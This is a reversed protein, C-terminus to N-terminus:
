NKKGFAMNPRTTVSNGLLPLPGPPMRPVNSTSPMRNCRAFAQALQQNVSVSNVLPVAKNYNTLPLPPAGPINAVPQKPTLLVRVPLSTHPLGHIPTTSLTSAAAVNVAQQITATVQNINAPNTNSPTFSAMNVSAKKATVLTSKASPINKKLSSVTVNDAQQVTTASQVPKGCATRTLTSTSVNVNAATTQVNQRSVASGQTQKVSPNRSQTSTSLNVSQKSAVTVQAPKSVSACSAKSPSMNVGQKSAVSGRLPTAFCTSSSASPTVNTTVNAATTQLPRSRSANTPTLTTMAINQRLVASSQVQKGSPTRSPTSTQQSGVTGQAPKSVSASSPKSAVSGQLPKAFSTNISTSTVMNVREKSTVIGQGPKAISANRSTSAAVNVATQTAESGCPTNSRSSGNTSTLSTKSVSQNPVSGPQTPKSRTTTKVATSNEVQMKLLQHYPITRTWLSRSNKLQCVVATKRKLKGTTMEHLAWSWATMQNQDSYLGKIQMLWRELDGRNRAQVTKTLFIEAAEQMATSLIGNFTQVNVRGIDRLCSMLADPITRYGNRWNLFAANCLTKGLWDACSAALLCSDSQNLKSLTQKIRECISPFCGIFGCVSLTQKVENFMHCHSFVEICGAPHSCRYKKLFAILSDKLHPWKGPKCAKQSALFNEYTPDNKFTLGAIETELEKLEKPGSPLVKNMKKFLSCLKDKNSNGKNQLMKTMTEVIKKLLVVGKSASQDKGLTGKEEQLIVQVIEFNKEIGSINPLKKIWSEYVHLPFCNSGLPKILNELVFGLFVLPSTKNSVTPSLIVSVCAWLLDKRKFVGLASTILYTQYCNTISFVRVVLAAFLVVVFLKFSGKCPPIIDSPSLLKNKAKDLLQGAASEFKQKADKSLGNSVASECFTDIYWELVVETRLNSNIQAVSLILALAKQLKPESISKPPPIKGAEADSTDERVIVTLLEKMDASSISGLACQSYNVNIGTEKPKTKTLVDRDLEESGPLTIVNMAQEIKGTKALLLVLKHRYVSINTLLKHESQSLMGFSASNKRIVKCGLMYFLADSFRKNKELVALRAEAIEEDETILDSGLKGAFCKVLTEDDWKKMELAMKLGTSEPSCILAGNIASRLRERVKDELNKPLNPHMFVEIWAKRLSRLAGQVQGYPFRESDGALLLVTLADLVIAAQGPQESKLYDTVTLITSSVNSSLNFGWGGGYNRYSWDYAFARNEHDEWCWRCGESYYSDDSDYEDDHCGCGCAFSSPRSNSSWKNIEDKLSELIETAKSAAAQLTETQENEPLCKLLSDQVASVKRKAMKRLKEWFANKAYGNCHPNSGTKWSDCKTVPTDCVYCYCQECYSENCSVTSTTVNSQVFKHAACNERAHPLNTGPKFYTIAVDKKTHSDKEDFIEVKKADNLKRKKLPSYDEPLVFVVDEDGSDSVCILPEHEFSKELKVELQCSQEETLQEKVEQFKKSLEKQEKECFALRRKLQAAKYVMDDRDPTKRIEQQPLSEKRRRKRPPSGSRVQVEIM